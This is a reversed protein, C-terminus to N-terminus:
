QTVPDPLFLTLFEGNIDVIHRVEKDAVKCVYEGGDDEGANTISVIRGNDIIEIDSSDEAAIAM